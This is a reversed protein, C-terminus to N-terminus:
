LCTLCLAHPCTTATHNLSLATAAPTVQAPLKALAGTDLSDVKDPEVIPSMDMDDNADTEAAASPGKALAGGVAGNMQSHDSDSSYGSPAAAPARAHVPARSHLARGQGASPQALPPGQTSSPPVYSAAAPANNTVQAAPTPAQAPQAEASSGSLYKQLVSMARMSTSGPLPLEDEDESSDSLVPLGSAASQQAPQAPVQGPAHRTNGPGPPQAAPYARM